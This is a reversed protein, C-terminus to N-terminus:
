DIEQYNWDRKAVEQPFLFFQVDGHACKEGKSNIINVEINCLNRVTKVIHGSIKIEGDTLLIPKIYRVSLKSTVGATKAKAYVTWSAVEDILTAQIGGHLINVYGQYDDKPTWSAIVGDETEYFELKLGSKNDPACGFCNYGELNSYPNSIRRM